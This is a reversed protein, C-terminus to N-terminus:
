SGRRYWEAEASRGSPRTTTVPPPLKGGCCSWRLMSNKEAGYKKLPGRGVTVDAGAAIPYPCANLMEVGSAADILLTVSIGNPDTVWVISM